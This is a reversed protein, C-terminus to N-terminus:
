ESAGSFFPPPPSRMAQPTMGYPLYGVPGGPGEQGSPYSNLQKLYFGSMRNSHEQGFCRHPDGPEWKLEDLVTRQLESDTKETIVASM